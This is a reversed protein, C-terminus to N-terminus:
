QRDGEALIYAEPPCHTKLRKNGTTDGNGICTVPEWYANM